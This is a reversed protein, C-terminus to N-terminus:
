TKVDKVEDRTVHVWGNILGVLFYACLAISAGISAYLKPGRFADDGFPILFFAALLLAASALYWGLRPFLKM